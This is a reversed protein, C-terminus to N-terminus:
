PTRASLTWQISMMGLHHEAQSPSRRCLKLQTSASGLFATRLWLSYSKRPFFAQTNSFPPGLREETPVLQRAILVKPTNHIWWQFVKVNPKM